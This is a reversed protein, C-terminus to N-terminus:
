TQHYVFVGPAWGMGVGRRRVGNINDVYVCELLALRKLVKTNSLHRMKLRKAALTVGVILAIDMMMDPSNKRAAVAKAKVSSCHRM